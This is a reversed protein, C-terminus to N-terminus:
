NFFQKIREMMIEEKTPTYQQEKDPIAAKLGTYANEDLFIYRTEEGYRFNVVTINERIKMFYLISEIPLEIIGSSNIFNVDLLYFNDEELWMYFKKEEVIGKSDIKPYGNYYKVIIHLLESGDKILGNELLYAKENHIPPEPEQSANESSKGNEEKQNISIDSFVLSEYPNIKKDSNSSDEKDIFEKNISKTKRKKILSTVGILICLVAFAVAITEIM